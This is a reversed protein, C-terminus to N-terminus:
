IHFLNLKDPTELAVEISLNKSLLRAVAETMLPEVKEDIQLKSLADKSVSLMYKYKDEYDYANLELKINLGFISFASYVGGLANMSDGELNANIGLAKFVKPVASEFDDQLNFFLYGM